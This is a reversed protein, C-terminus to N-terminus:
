YSFMKCTMINHVTNKVDKNRLSYILPNLMPIVVSYFVSAVKFTHRSSESNPVCYLFFITGYFVAIAMLHSVCTSFAKRRGSASRMKLITVLIFAYSPLIVLLTSIANFTSIIFLLLQNIHTDSSSLSLLSSIDCFIHDIKNSGPFSLQLTSCTLILSCAVGWSYSGLVLTLCLKLSMTATYHLPDCIAVFHDYAMSALLFAETIVFIGFFILQMICETFSIPKDKLVLNALMKPAITSSYCFDVFSLHGLFFYMPTHLRPKVKIVAIMGINGVVTVTYVSLFLVFLLAQMEPVGSFGLVIFTIGSKNRDPLAM